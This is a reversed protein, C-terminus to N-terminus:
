KEDFVFAKDGFIIIDGKTITTPKTVRILTTNFESFNEIKWEGDDFFIKAQIRSTITNNGPDLNQRNLEIPEGNFDFGTNVTKNNKELPKLSFSFPFDPNRKLNDSNYYTPKITGPEAGPTVQQPEPKINLNKLVFNRDENIFIYCGLVFFDKFGQTSRSEFLLKRLPNSSVSPRDASNKYREGLALWKKLAIKDKGESIANAYTVITAENNLYDNMIEAIIEYHKISGTLSREFSEADANVISCYKTIISKKLFVIEQYSLNTNPM